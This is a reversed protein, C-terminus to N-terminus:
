AIWPQGNDGPHSGNTSSRPAQSKPLFRRIGSVVIQKLDADGACPPISAVAEGALAELREIAGKVGLEIAASPRGLASDRAVPKGADSATSTADCIDDAVQYAEGLLRGLARWRAPDAGAAIAGAETAAVFLAGTKAQHYDSLRVRPECEWAQGATIGAPFGVSRGIIGILAGIREPTACGGLAVIEFARVILADGALVALREGYARHVTPKGRRTDADDFCPLDDHVLSACHLLEISAAAADALDPNDDGCASAVALCLRPRIRAGGPFVAHQLAAALRPPCGPSEAPSLASALCHEIRLAQDM